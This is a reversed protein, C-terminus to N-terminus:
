KNYNIIINKLEYKMEGDGEKKEAGHCHLLTGLTLIVGSWGRKGSGFQDHLM